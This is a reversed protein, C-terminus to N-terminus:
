SKILQTGRIGVCYHARYFGALDCAHRGMESALEKFCEYYCGRLVFSHLSNNTTRPFGGVVGSIFKPPAAVLVGESVAHWFSQVM